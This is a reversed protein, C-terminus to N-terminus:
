RSWKINAKIEKYDLLTNGTPPQLNPTYTFGILLVDRFAINKLKEPYISSVGHMVNPDWLFVTDLNNTLTCSDLLERNKSYIGNIGGIVNKRKILHICVFDNDDQHVGEPTPEGNETETTVIRVQHIDVIWPQVKKQDKIPLQLFDFKILELLFDNTSIEDTMGDFKRDIGEAYQNVELPQFYPTPAFPTIKETTPLFYFYRFKRFRFSKGDKLYIDKQLNEWSEDFEQKKQKLHDPIFFDKNTIISYYNSELESHIPFTTTIRNM